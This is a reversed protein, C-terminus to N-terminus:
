SFAHRLTLWLASWHVQRGGIGTARGAIASVGAVGYTAAASGPGHVLASIRGGRALVRGGAAAVAVVLEQLLNLLLLQLM